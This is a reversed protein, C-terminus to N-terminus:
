GINGQTTSKPKHGVHFTFCHPCEYVHMNDNKPIKALAKNAASRTFYSKKRECAWYRKPHSVPLPVKDAHGSM